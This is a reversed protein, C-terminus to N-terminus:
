YGQKKKKEAEAKPVFLETIGKWADKAAGAVDPGKKFGKAFDKAAQEPFEFKKKKKEENDM